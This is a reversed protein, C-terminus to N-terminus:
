GCQQANRIIFHKSFAVANEEELAISDLKLFELHRIYAYALKYNEDGEAIEGCLIVPVSDPSLNLQEMCFLTYYLFDAPSKYLFTNCLQLEGNKLILCDFSNKQFHLFMKPLSYKEERFITKLLITISHYYSFAGFKEFFFNNINMFPVHVVVIDQNEIFDHAMYDNALIKSNFKLYESAKTQDFLAHPVLSYVSTSYILIVEAFGSNLTENKLIVSEIELLLEEPTTSHDLHRELFLITKETKLDTVLFSLGNLSVQVSLRHNLTTTLTNIPPQMM